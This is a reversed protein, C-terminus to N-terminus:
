WRILASAWTFGAGFAAVMVLKGDSILGMEKMETFLIPITAATTNGYKEINNYVKEDPIDLGSAVFQNIRLNAQHFVFADVDKVSYGNCDLAEMIVEPLKEVAKIFVRKGHMKPYIFGEDIDKHTIMPHYKTGVKEIWLDKAFDGNTHLHTSLIGTEGPRDDPGLIAVGAGDGFLVTVDRGRNAYELCTSHIEQGVVMIYDYMGTKIYQDAVSMAYVFGTCQNRVDLTPCEQLGLKSQLFPANGPFTYDPSLTAYIIMQIQKVDIDADELAKEAAFKAMDTGEMPWDVFRREKIGTRQYIWEDSTDFMKALDDNTVVRDPVYFGTGLIRTKRLM